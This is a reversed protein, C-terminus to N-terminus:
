QSLDGSDQGPAAPVVTLSCGAPMRIIADGDPGVQLTWGRITVRDRPSSLSEGPLAEALEDTSVYRIPRAAGKTWTVPSATGILPAWRSSFRGAFRVRGNELREWGEIDYAAVVTGDAVGLIGDGYQHLKAENLAAWDGLVSEEASMYRPVSPWTRSVNAVLM